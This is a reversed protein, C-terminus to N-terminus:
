VKKSLWMELCQEGKALQTKYPMASGATDTTAYHTSPFYDTDTREPISVASPTEIFTLEFTRKTLEGAGTSIDGGSIKITGSFSQRFGNSTGLVLHAFLEPEGTASAGTGTIDSLKFASNDECKYEKDDDTATASLYTDLLSAFDANNIFHSVTAVLNKQKRHGKIDHKEISTDIFIPATSITGVRAEATGTYAVNYILLLNGADGMKVNNTTPTGIINPM